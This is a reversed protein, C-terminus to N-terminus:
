DCAVVENVHLEVARPHTRNRLILIQDLEIDLGEIIISAPKCEIARSADEDDIMRPVM